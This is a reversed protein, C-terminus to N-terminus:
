RMGLDRLYTEKDKQSIFAVLGNEEECVPAWWPLSKKLEYSCMVPYVTVQTLDKAVILGTKLGRM